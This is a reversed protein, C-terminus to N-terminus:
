LTPPPPTLDNKPAARTAGCTVCYESMTLVVPELHLRYAENQWNHAHLNVKVDPVSDFPPNFEVGTAEKPFFMKVPPRDGGEVRARTTQFSKLAEGPDGCMFDLGDIGEMAEALAEAHRALEIVLALEETNIFTGEDGYILTSDLNKVAVLFEAVTRDNM